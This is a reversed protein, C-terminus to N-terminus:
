EALLQWPYRSHIVPHSEQTKVLGLVVQLREEVALRAAKAHGRLVGEVTVPLYDVLAPDAEEAAEAHADVVVPEGDLPVDVLAM